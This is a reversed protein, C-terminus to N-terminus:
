YSGWQSMLHSRSFFNQASRSLWKPAKNLNSIDSNERIEKVLHIYFEFRYNFNKSLPIKIKVKHSEDTNRIIHCFIEGVQCYEIESKSNDFCFLNIFIARIYLRLFTFLLFLLPLFNWYSKSWFVFIFYIGFVNLWNPM